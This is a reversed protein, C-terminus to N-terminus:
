SRSCDERSTLLHVYIHHNPVIAIPSLHSPKNGEFSLPARDNLRLFLTHSTFVGPYIDELISRGAPVHALAFKHFGHPSPHPTRLSTIDSVGYFWISSKNNPNFKAFKGKENLESTKDRAYQTWFFLLSSKFHRKEHLHNKKNKATWVTNWQILANKYPTCRGSRRVKMVSCGAVSCLKNWGAACCICFSYNLYM